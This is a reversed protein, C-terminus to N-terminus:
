VYNAMVSSLKFLYNKVQVTMIFQSLRLDCLPIIRIFFVSRLIFYKMFASITRHTAAAQAISVM